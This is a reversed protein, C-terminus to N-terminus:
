LSFSVGGMIRIPDQRQGYFIETNPNTLDMNFGVAKYRQNLANSINIFGSLKKDVMYRFSVNLLAYGPITQRQRVNGTTDGTGPLNQRGMLLLRPSCTFKGAKIDNQFRFMFPAIFSLEIDKETEENESLGNDHRGQVYSLSAISNIQVEGISFNGDVQISGGYNQQRNNNTFVEIYDVPIGLFMNNYLKTTENDDAFQLLGSLKTYYGSVSIILNDTINQRLNLEFNHSKIPKLNPNPLHLFYSAYTRGSDLTYFTGYHSYSDSPSPALFANGYLAKITTNDSLKYVLGMRPNFTKGYRSNYDYRAGVTFHLKEAPIYQAQFYSGINYYKLFFFQAPLGEPRYYAKTGLYTAHIYDKTDVPADLDSSQPVADYHEYGIGASLNLKDSAKYELQEEAKIMTCVSYKYGSELATYLNRYNSQPDLNYKSVTLLTASTLDGFSKKFTTNGMTISQGMFVERNYITNGTNNGFATPVKFSNRFFSMTFNASSLTAYINYAEMPAEFKSRVPAVPTIPGYITNFTGTKYGDINYQEDNKYLKSYDVGRDYFYQGSVAFHMQDNLKKSIFLTSNTYGYSGGTTSAEVTLNKRSTAKKTIINIVGSLANAGYLASAPGYVVEIQEALHVPYNEMIPMAEGSPSSVTIGDIMIVMKESGQTGRITFSNRMGSYMKDDVKVDPLDFMVDLLSQYGRARIQDKTIVIVSAPAIGLQQATRSATTVKVNLLESLSFKKLTSDSQAWTALCALAAMTCTIIRKQLNQKM